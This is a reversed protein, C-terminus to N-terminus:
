TATASTPTDVAKQPPIIVECGLAELREIAAMGLDPDNYNAFLDTFFAVKRVPNSVPSPGRKAFRKVLTKRSFKPLQRRRDIGMVKEMAWRVLGIDMMWNSIPATLSSMKAAKEAAMLMKNVRPHPNAESDRDKVGAIM